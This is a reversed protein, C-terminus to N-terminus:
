RPKKPLSEIWRVIDATMRGPADLQISHTQDPYDIVTVSRAPDRTVFERTAENDIIRDRGALFVLMPPHRADDKKAVLRDMRTSQMFFAASATHLKLPDDQIYRLHEPNTTFMESEIPTPHQRTPAFVSDFFVGLKQGPSLDVKPKMGPTILVMGDVDDPYTADYAMVYKGGWSLGILHIEDFRGSSRVLGVARHVDEVLDSGRDVHGSIHGRNERNLGSGRRDLSFVPYGRAALQRAAEDFWGSHSEIGHLYIFAARRPNARRPRHVVYALEKGDRAEFTQVEVGKSRQAIQGPTPGPGPLTGCHALLTIGGLGLLTRRLHPIANM